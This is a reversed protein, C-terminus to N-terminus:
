KNLLSRFQIAMNNLQNFQQQSMRGSMMLQQVIQEAGGQSNMNQPLGIQSVLQQVAQNPDGRASNWFANFKNILNGFINFSNQNIQKYLNSQM